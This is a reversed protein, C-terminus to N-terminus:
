TKMILYMQCHYCPFKILNKQFVKSPKFGIKQSPSSDHNLFKYKKELNLVSQKLEDYEKDSIIPKDKSYYLEDHKKLQNIKNIYNKKISQKNEM